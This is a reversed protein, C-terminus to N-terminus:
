SGGAPLHITKVTDRSTDRARTRYISCAETITRAASNKLLALDSTNPSRNYLKRAAVEEIEM